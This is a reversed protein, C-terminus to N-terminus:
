IEKAERPEVILGANGILEKADGVGSVVDLTECATAKGIVNSFEEGFRSM